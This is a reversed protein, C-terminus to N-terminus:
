PLSSIDKVGRNNNGLAKRRMIPEEGNVNLYPKWMDSCVFRIEKVVEPGLAKL